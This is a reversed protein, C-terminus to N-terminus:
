QNKKDKANRRKGSLNEEGKEEQQQEKELQALRERALEPSLVEEGEVIGEKEARSRPIEEVIVIEHETVIETGIMLQIIQAAVYLGALVVLIVLVRLFLSLLRFTVSKDEAMSDAIALFFPRFHNGFDLLKTV